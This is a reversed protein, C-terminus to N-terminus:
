GIYVLWTILFISVNVINHVKYGLLYQEYTGVIIEFSNTLRADSHMKKWRKVQGVDIFPVSARAHIFSWQVGRTAVGRRFKM